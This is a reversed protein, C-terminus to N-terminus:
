PHKGNILNDFNKYQSCNIKFEPYNTALIEEAKSKGIECNQKLEIRKRRRAEDINEQTSYGGAAFGYARRPNTELTKLGALYSCYISEIKEPTVEVHQFLIAECQLAHFNLLPKQAVASASFTLLTTLTLIRSTNM